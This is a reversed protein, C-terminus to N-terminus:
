RRRRLGVLGALGGLAVAGPAPTIIFTSSSTVSDEASLIFSNRIGLSVAAAPGGIFAPVGFNTTSISATSGGGAVQSFPANRLTQVTNGDLLAEYLSGGTLAAVSAGNQSASNDIVSGSHSGRMSTGPFPITIPATALVTFPNAVAFSNTITFNSTVSAVPFGREGAGGALDPSLILEYSAVVQGGNGDWFCTSQGWIRFGGDTTQETQWDSPYQSMVWVQGGFDIQLDVQNSYGAQAAGAAALLVTTSVIHRM